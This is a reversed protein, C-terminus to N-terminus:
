IPPTSEPALPADENEDLAAWADIWQTVVSKSADHDSPDDVWQIAWLKILENISRGVRIRKEDPVAAMHTRADRAALMFSQAGPDAMTQASASLRDGISVWDKDLPVDHGGMVMHVRGADLWANFDTVWRERVGRAERRNERRATQVSIVIAVVAVATTALTGAISVIFTGVDTWTPEPPPPPLVLFM